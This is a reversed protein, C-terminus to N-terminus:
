RASNWVTCFEERTRWFPPMGPGGVRLGAELSQIRRELQGPGPPGGGPCKTVKHRTHEHTIMDSTCPGYIIVVPIGLGSFRYVPLRNFARVRGFNLFSLSFRHHLSTACPKQKQERCCHHPQRMGQRRLYTTTRRSRLASVTSPTRTRVVM